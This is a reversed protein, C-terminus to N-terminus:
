GTYAPFDIFTAPMYLFSMEEGTDILNQTSRPM